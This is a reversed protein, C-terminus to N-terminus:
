SNQSPLHDDWTKAIELATRYHNLGFAMVLAAIPYFLVATTGLSFGVADDKMFLYQTLLAIILPALLYSLFSVAIGYIAVMQARFENPTVSQVIAAGLGPTLSMLFIVLPVLALAITTNGVFGMAAALPTIAVCKFVAVRMAGDERGNKILWTAIYGGTISGSIGFVLASTGFVLGAESRSLGHTRILFEAGWAFLAFGQTAMLLFGSFLLLFLRWRKMMFSFIESLPVVQMSESQHLKGTRPPERVTMMVAALVIGPISVVLFAAQWSRLVGFGPIVIQPANELYEILVGGLIYAIGAGVFTASQFVGVAFPLQEKRFYDSLMSYAAPQLSAEGVGVGMRAAFLHSYNQALGSFFTMISWFFIGISIIARRSYRDSLRAIPLTLTTYFLAFAAGILLSVQVDSIELDRRIPGIMLALIQRDVYSIISALTLIFVAYWAYRTGSAAESFQGHESPAGTIEGQTSM